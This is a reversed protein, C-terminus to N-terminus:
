QGRPLKFWVHTSGEYVAWEATLKDVVDLGLGGSETAEMIEPIAANPNGQDAVEGRISDDDLALAVTIPKGPGHEVSNNLLETVVAMLDSLTGASLVDSFRERIAKRARSGAHRNPSLVVRFEPTSAGSGAEMM